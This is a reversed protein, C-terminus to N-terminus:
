AEFWPEARFEGAFKDVMFDVFARVKAPLQARSPYLAYIGAPPNEYAELIPVLAGSALARRCAFAPLRTIGAGAAALAEEAEASNVTVRPNAPVSVQRGSADMFRWSRAIPRQAFDILSHEALDDPTRPTGAASLYAPSAVTLQRSTVLRRAVLERDPLQGVRLVVDFAEGVIDVMRDSAELDLRIRPHRDLFEPLWGNVCSLALSVPVSAKLLGSPQESTEVVARRAARADEIIARAREYYSRGVETLSITRTTRNLLRANLQAELRAVQKSVHSPSHGLRRAAAGFGDNEVVACFVVMGDFVSENDDM